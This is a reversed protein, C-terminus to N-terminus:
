LINLYKNFPSLSLHHVSAIYKSAILPMQSISKAGRVILSFATMSTKFCFSGRVTRARDLSPITKYSYVSSFDRFVAIYHFNYKSALKQWEGLFNNVMLITIFQVIGRIIKMYNRLRFMCFEVFKSAGIIMYFVFTIINTLFTTITSDYFISVLKHTNFNPVIFIGMRLPAFTATGDYVSDSPNATSLHHLFNMFNSNKVLM